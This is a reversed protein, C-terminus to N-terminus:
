SDVHALRSVTAIHERTAARWAGGDGIFEEGHKKLHRAFLPCVPVVTLGNRISDALAERLLIGALGRGAFQEDVETHFFIRQRDADAPDIFDARGVGRADALDVTFASVPRM